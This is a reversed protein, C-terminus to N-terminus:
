EPPLGRPDEDVPVVDSTHIYWDLMTQEMRMRTSQYAPDDYVNTLELPDNELDYL